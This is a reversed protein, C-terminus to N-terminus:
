PSKKVRMSSTLPTQRNLAVAEVILNRLNADRLQEREWLKVHRLNKGTGELLKGPDRLSTGRPFGFTVHHKGVIMFCLPGHFDFTPIGWPNITERAMPVTKKVLRRLADAVPMLKANRGQVYEHITKAPNKAPGPSSTARHKSTKTLSNLKRRMPFEGKSALTKRLIQPPTLFNENQAFNSRIALYHL